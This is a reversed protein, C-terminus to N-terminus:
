PMEYGLLDLLVKHPAIQKRLNALDESKLRSAAAGPQVQRGLEGRSRQSGSSLVSEEIPAFPEENRPLGLGTLKEVVVEPQLVLDEFRVVVCRPGLDTSEM